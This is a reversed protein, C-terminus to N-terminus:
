KTKTRKVKNKKMQEKVVTAGHEAAIEKLQDYVQFVRKNFIPEYIDTLLTKNRIM